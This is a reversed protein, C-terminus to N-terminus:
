PTAVGVFTYKNGNSSTLNFTFKGTTPVLTGSFTGTEPSNTGITLPYFYGYVTNPPIFLFWGEFSVNIGSSLLGSGYIIFMNPVVSNNSDKFPEITLPDITGTSSGSIKLSWNMPIDLESLWVGSMSFVSVNNLDKLTLKMKTANSSLSGTINGNSLWSNVSWDAPQYTGNIVGNADLAYSGQIGWVNGFNLTVGYGDYTNEDSNFWLLAAGKEAGSITFMWGNELMNFSKDSTDWSEWIGNVNNGIYILTSFVHSKPSVSGQGPPISPINWLYSFSTGSSPSISPTDNSNTIPYWTGNYSYFLYITGTPDLYNSDWTILHWAGAVWTEGGNPSTVHIFPKETVSVALVGSWDSVSNPNLKSRARARVNNTSASIWTESQKASGWSSLDTTGDGLWDFQYEVPDGSAAVSGGTAYTYTNGTIGTKPGTPTKPATITTNYTFTAAATKNGNLSGFTCTATGTGDGAETGAASICTGGWSATSGTGAVATLKVSTGYNLPPTTGTNNAPYSCNIGAPNSSVNGTGNGNATATVQYQNIGFTASVTINAIVNTDTRSATILGDSWQVFSYGTAPVATVPTGSAGYNVTQPSVGSISGHPGATYTLTYTNIAFSATVGCNATIAPTTYTYTSVSNSTNTYGTGGCTSTVTAVHYGTNADFKFQTTTNSNVTVPSPTTGDLSGNTGAAATVQYTNIAFAATVTINATVNKDTRPNTTSLDSWQVFSYGTAPVATVRTGSAGYNVTQPSVGSISGHPGAAYTLTYTNIAFSATVGCNATIAPTTYTYTSVSNSSNTYGPGGCTNTVTAVHYGTNADFKFQTTTNSNVTVPSPTTADLKGNTGATATVQYQVPHSLNYQYSATASDASENGSTDVATM